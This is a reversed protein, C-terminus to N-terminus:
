RNGGSCYSSSRRRCPSRPNSPNPLFVVVSSYHPWTRSLNWGRNQSPRRRGPRPLATRHPATRHLATCTAEPCGHQHIVNVSQSVSQGFPSRINAVSQSSAVLSYECLPHHHIETPTEVSFVQVPPGHFPYQSLTHAGSPELVLSIRVLSTGLYTPASILCDSSPPPPPPPFPFLFPFCLLPFLVFVVCCVAFQLAFCLLAFCLSFYFLYLFPPTCHQTPICLKSPQTNAIPRHSKNTESTHHATHEWALVSVHVLWQRKATHPCLCTM